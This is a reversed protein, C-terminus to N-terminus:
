SVQNVQLLPAAQASKASIGFVFSFSLATGLLAIVLQSSKWISAKPLESERM